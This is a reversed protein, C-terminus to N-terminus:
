AKPTVKAAFTQVEIFGNRVIFTDHSVPFRRDEDSSSLESRRV